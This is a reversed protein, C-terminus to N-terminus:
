KRKKGMQSYIFYGGVGAILVIIAVLWIMTSKSQTPAKEETKTEEKTVPPQETTPKTEVDKVPTIEGAVPTPKAGIAFYSFGPTTAKYEIDSDGATLLTTPLENWKGGAYRLLVVNGQLLKNETLWAKTVKFKIDAKNLSSAPLNKPTLALYMFINNLAPRAIDSPSSVLKEVTLEVNKAETNVDLAVSTLAVEKLNVILVREVGPLVTGLSYSMKVSPLTTAIQGVDVNSISTSTTTTTTTTASTQSYTYVLTTTNTNGHEDTANITLNNTGIILTVAFSPTKTFTNGAITWNAGNFSYTANVYELSTATVTLSYTSATSSYSSANAPSVSISPAATDNVKFTYNVQATNNYRDTVNITLVYNDNPFVGNSLNGFATLSQNYTTNYSNGGLSTYTPSSLNTQNIGNLRMWASTIYEGVTFTLALDGGSTSNDPSTVTMNAVINDLALVVTSFSNLYAITVNTTTNTYYCPRSSGTDPVANSSCQLTAYCNGTNPCYYVYNFSSASTANFTVRADYTTAGTLFASANKVSIIAVPTAGLSQVSANAVADTINVIILNTANWNFNTGTINQMSVIPVTGTINVNLSISISTNLFISDSVASSGNALTINVSSLSSGSSSQISAVAATTNVPANVTFTVSTANGINNLTDNAQIYITHTGASFNFLTVNNAGAIAGYANTVSDIIYWVQSIIGITADSTNWALTIPVTLTAGSAPSSMTVVPGVNDYLFTIGNTVSNGAKDIATVNLTRTGQSLTPTFVCTYNLGDSSAACGSVTVASGDITATVADTGNIGAIPDKATFNITATTRNSGQSPATFTLTPATKDLTFQTVATRSNGFSDIASITLIQLGDNTSATMLFSCTQSTSTGSCNATTNTYAASSGGGTINVNVSSLNLGALSEALTFVIQTANASYYTANAPASLTITPATADLTFSRTSTTNTQGAANTCRASWNYTGDAISSSINMATGNVVSANTANVIGNILISCNLSTYTIDAVTIGFRVTNNTLNAGAAPANLTIVPVATSITFVSQATKLNASMDKVSINMTQLGDSTTNLTLICVSSTNSADCSIANLGGSGSTTYVYTAVSNSINIALTSKNLGSVSDAITFNITPTSTNQSTGNAPAALSITPGNADVTLARAVTTNTQGAADNCTASWNYVGDSITSTIITATANSVSTNTANVAGNILISCNLTSYVLNTATINFSVTNSALNAGAAPATLTIIPKSTSVIFTRTVSFNNAAANGLSDPGGNYDYCEVSWNHPGDAIAPVTSINVISSMNISNFITQNSDVYLNCDPWQTTDTSNFTFTVSSSSSNYGNVPSMLNITPPTADVTMTKNASIGTAGGANLCQVYWTKAGDSLTSTMITTTGNVVSANTKNVVGNVYVSCNLTAYLADIVTFNFPVSAISVFSGSAPTYSTVNPAAISVTFASTATASNTANDAATVILTYSGTSLAASTLNCTLTTTGTCTLNSATYVTGSFNVRISSTNVGSITDTATFNVLTTSTTITSANQPLIITITPATIDVYFATNSTANNGAIGGYDAATVNLTHSGPSGGTSIICNFTDSGLVIASCVATNSTTNYYYTTSTNGDLGITISSPETGTGNVTINITFVTDNIALKPSNVTIIPTSNDTVNYGSFGLVNITLNVTSIVLSPDYGNLVFGSSGLKSSNDAMVVPLRTFPLYFFQITANTDLEIFASSNIDIRAIGFRHPAILTVNLATQLLSLKEAQAQTSLNVSTLNLIMVDRFTTANPLAGPPALCSFNAQINVIFNVRAFDGVTSFNTTLPGFRTCGAPGQPMSMGNIIATTMNPQGVQSNGVVDRFGGVVPLIAAMANATVNTVNCSGSFIGGGLHTMNVLTCATFNSTFNAIITTNDVGSAADTINVRLNITNYGPVNSYFMDTDNLWIANLVPAIEDVNVSLSISDNYNGVYDTANIQISNAGDSTASINVICTARWNTASTNQFNVSGICKNTVASVSTIVNLNDTVNVNLTANLSAPLTGGVFSNQGPPYTTASAIVSPNTYDITIQQVSTSNIGGTVNTIYVTVPQALAQYLSTGLCTIDATTNFLNLTGNYCSQIGTFYTVNITTVNQEETANITVNFLYSSATINTGTTPKNISIISWGLAYSVSTAIIFISLLVLFILKSYGGNKANFLRKIASRKEDM